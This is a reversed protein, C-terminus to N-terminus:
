HILRWDDYITSERARIEGHIEGMGESLGGRLLVPNGGHHQQGPRIGISEARRDNWALPCALPREAEVRM